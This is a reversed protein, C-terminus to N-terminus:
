YILDVIYETPIIPLDLRCSLLMNNSNQFCAVNGSLIVCHCHFERIEKGEEDVVSITVDSTEKDGLLSGVKELVKEQGIGLLKIATNADKVPTTLAVAYNWDTKLYARVKLRLTVSDDLGLFHNLRDERVDHYLQCCWRGMRLREKYGLNTEWNKLSLDSCLFAYIYICLSQMSIIFHM